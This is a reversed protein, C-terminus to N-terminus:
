RPGGAPASEVHNLQQDLKKLKHRYYGELLAKYFLTGVIRAGSPMPHIFDASVLRPEANYWRGMTGPGGMAQFTNYFAVREDRAIREQMAVLRNMVPVTGIAGGAQREGRDMPSMVLVATDPIAVRLRRLIERLEKEYQTDVYPAYVSENTGYNVVVLDPAAQRLQEAWHDFNFFRALVRSYAGNLGISDYVVGPEGKFFAYGFLRVQGRTVKLSVSLAEPALSFDQAGALAEPAETDIEGLIRGGSEVQVAGGGPQALYSVSVRTHGPKKFTVTSSAGASGRFSVGGLGYLGDKLNTLTAPDITWGSARCDLGSHGYWAWPKAILYTGHGADGFKAQLLARTDSTILDGTTPSDGYHLIRVRAGSERREIRFLEDYFSDLRGSPDALDPPRAAPRAAAEPRRLAVHQDEVPTPSPTRDHFAFLGRATEWEYIHWNYFAPIFRPATIIACFLAM